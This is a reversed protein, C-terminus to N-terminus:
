SAAERKLDRAFREGAETLVAFYHKRRGKTSRFRIFIRDHMAMVVRFDVARGAPSTWKHLGFQLTGEELLVLLGARLTPKIKQLGTRGARHRRLFETKRQSRRERHIRANLAKRSIPHPLLAAAMEALFFPQPELAGAPGHPRLKSGATDTM